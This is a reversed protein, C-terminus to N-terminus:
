MWRSSWSSTSKNECSNSELHLRRHRVPNKIAHKAPREANRKGGRTQACPGCTKMCQTRWWNGQHECMQWEENHQQCTSVSAIDACAGATTPSRTPNLTPNLTPSTPSMGM